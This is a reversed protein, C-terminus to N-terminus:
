QTGNQSIVSKVVKWGNRPDKNLFKKGEKSIPPHVYWGSRLRDWLNELIRKFKPNM